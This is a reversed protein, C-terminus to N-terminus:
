HFMTKYCSIDRSVPEHYTCGPTSFPTLRGLLRLEKCRAALDGFFKNWREDMAIKRIEDAIVDFAALDILLRRDQATSSSAPYITKRCLDMSACDEFILKEVM